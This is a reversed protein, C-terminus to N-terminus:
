KLLRIIAEAFKEVNKPEVLVGSKVVEPHSGIDFAVVSKGVAQAEVAPMDFGEWLTATIYLDAAKYYFPLDEDPVYGAFIVNENALKKLKKSYDGFTHKGAIVLKADPLKENVIKFAKVLLDIGKHPSIRGVYLLMKGKIGFKKKIEDAEARSIDRNFRRKDVNVYRVEAPLNVEKQLEQKLFNSICIAKDANKITKKTLWKFLRLYIRESLKPFLEPYAIGMDYFVYDKGFRKKAKSALVTMPYMFSIIEDFDNLQNVAKRVKFVDFFFFLRYVRELFSSKPAGLLVLGYNKPRIDGKLAFVTVENTKSLREAEDEVVRDPGSFRSFTPVLIAIKM